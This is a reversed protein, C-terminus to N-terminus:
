TTSATPTSRTCARRSSRRTSCRATPPSACSSTPAPERRRGAPLADLVDDVPGACSRRAASADRADAVQTTAPDTTTAVVVEDCVGSDRAAAIVWALVPRGGLDRLVKGPLRTSGTRAQIVAVCRSPMRTRLVEVVRDQEAETLQPHLPLSLLGEYARETEPFDAATRGTDAYLPHKYIPVYHVQVGIGAARM